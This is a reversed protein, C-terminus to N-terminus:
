MVSYGQLFFYFSGLFGEVEKELIRINKYYVQSVVIAYASNLIVMGCSAQLRM